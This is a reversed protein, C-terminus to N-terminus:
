VRVRTAFLGGPRFAFFIIALALTMYHIAAFGLYFTTLALTSGIPLVSWVPNRTAHAYVPVAGVWFASGAM